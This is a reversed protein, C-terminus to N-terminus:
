FTNRYYVMPRGGKARLMLRGGGELQFGVSGREALFGRKAQPKLNLEISARYTPQQQLQATVPTEGPSAMRRSATVDIRRESDLTHRWHVGVDMTPQAAFGSTGPLAGTQPVLNSMGVTPGISSTGPSLLSMSLRPGGWSGDGSDLRPPNSANVELRPPKDAPALAAADPTLTLPPLEAQAWAGGCAACWAIAAACPAQWSAKTTRGAQAGIAHAQIRDM